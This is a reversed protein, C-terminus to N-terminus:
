SLEAQFKSLEYIFIDVTMTQMKVSPWEDSLAFQSHSDNNRLYQIDMHTPSNKSPQSPCDESWVTTLIDLFRSTTWQDQSQM